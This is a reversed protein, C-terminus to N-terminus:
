AAAWVVQRGVWGGEQGNLWVERVQVTYLLSPVALKVIELPQEAVHQRLQRALTAMSGGGQLLIVVLCAALKLLEMMTVATSPLYRQGPMTRSYRLMLVLATNQLVLMLLSSYRIWAGPQAAAIVAGTPVGNRPSGTASNVKM